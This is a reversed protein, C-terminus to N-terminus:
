CDIGYKKLTEIGKKFSSFDIIDDMELMIDFEEELMSIMSMHGVSDWQQIDQYKLEDLKEKETEFSDIFVKQYRELNSM